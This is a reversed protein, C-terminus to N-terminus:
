VVIQENNLLPNDSRHKSMRRLAKKSLCRWFYVHKQYVGHKFKMAELIRGDPDSVFLLGDLLFNRFYGQLAIAGTFPYYCYGYGEGGKNLFQYNFLLHSKFYINIESAISDVQYVNRTFSLSDSPMLYAKGIIYIIKEYEGTFYNFVSDCDKANSTPIRNQSQAMLGFLNFFLCILLGTKIAKMNCPIHTTTKIKVMAM